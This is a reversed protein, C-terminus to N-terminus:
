RQGVEFMKIINTKDMNGGIQNIRTNIINKSLEYMQDGLAPLKNNGISDQKKRLSNYPINLLESIYNVNILTDTLKINKETLLSDVYYYDYYEWKLRKDINKYQRLINPIEYIKFLYDPTYDITTTNDIYYQNLTYNDGNKYYSFYTMDNKGFYLSKVINYNDIDYKAITDKIISYKVSLLERFLHLLVIEDFENTLMQALLEDDSNNKVFENIEDICKKYYDNNVTLKIGVIGALIDVLNEKDNFYKDFKRKYFNLWHNYSTVFKTNFELEERYIYKIDIPAFYFIRTSKEFVRINHCDMNTVPGDAERIISISVDKEIIPLFRFSRTKELPINNLIISECFYTYIEVNKANYIYDVLEILKIKDENEPLNSLIDYISSDLYLRVIYEPLNNMINDVSKKISFLYEYFRDINKGKFYLIISVCKCCNSRTSLDFIKKINDM